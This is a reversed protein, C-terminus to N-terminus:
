PCRQKSETRNHHNIERKKKKKNLNEKKTKIKKNQKKSIPSYNM